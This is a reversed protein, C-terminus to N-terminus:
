NFHIPDADPDPVWLPKEWAILQIAIDILWPDQIHPLNKEIDKKDDATLHKAALDIRRQDVYDPGINDLGALALYSITRTLTKPLTMERLQITYGSELFVIHRPKGTTVYAPVAPVQTTLGIMNAAQAGTPWIREGTQRKIAELVQKQSPGCIGIRHHYRPYDYINRCARRIFGQATLCRLAGIIQRLTGLDAFDYATFAWGTGNEEIRGKIHQSIPIM